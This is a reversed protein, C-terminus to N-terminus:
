LNHFVSYILVISKNRSFLSNFIQYKKKKTYMVVIKLRVEIKEFMINYLEKRKKEAMISILYINGREHYLKM